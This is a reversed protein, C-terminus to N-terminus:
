RKRHRQKIELVQVHVDIAEKYRKLKKLVAVKVMMIRLTDQHDTGLVRINSQLVEDYYKLAESLRELSSLVVAINTLTMLTDEHDEGLDQRQIQLLKQYMTLAEAKRELKDLIWATWFMSETSLQDAGSVTIRREVVENFYPLAESFRNLNM